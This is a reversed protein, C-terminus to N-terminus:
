VCANSRMSWVQLDDSNVADSSGQLNALYDEQIEDSDSSDEGDLSDDDSSLQQSVTHAPRKGQLCPCGTAFAFATYLRCQEPCDVADSAKQWGRGAIEYISDGECHIRLGGIHLPADESEGQLPCYEFTSPLM